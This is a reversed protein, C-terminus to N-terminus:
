AVHLRLSNMRDTRSGVSRTLVAGKAEVHILVFETLVNSQIRQLEDFDHADFANLM